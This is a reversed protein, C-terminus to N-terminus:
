KVEEPTAKGTQSSIGWYRAYPAAIVGEYSFPCRNTCPNCPKQLFKFDPINNELSPYNAEEIEASNIYPVLSGPTKKSNGCNFTGKDPLPISTTRTRSIFKVVGVSDDINPNRRTNRGANPMGNVIGVVWPNFLSDSVPNPGVVSIKPVSLYVIIENYVKEKDEENIDKNNKIQNKINDKVYSNLPWGGTENFIKAEDETAYMEWNSIAKELTDNVINPIKEKLKKKMTERTEDSFKNYEPLIKFYKFQDEEKKTTTEDTKTTTADTKTLSDFLSFSELCSIKFYNYFLIAILFLLIIIIIYLKKM